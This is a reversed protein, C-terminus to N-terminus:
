RKHATAELETIREKAININLQKNNDFNDIRQAFLVPAILWIVVALLAFALFIFGM